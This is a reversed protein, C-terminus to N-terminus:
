VADWGLLSCHEYGGGHSVWIWCVMFLYLLILCASPPLSERAEHCRYLRHCKHPYTHNHIFSAWPSTLADHMQRPCHCTHRWSDGCWGFLKQCSRSDTLVRQWDSFWTVTKGPPERLCCIKNWQPNEPWQNVVRTPTPCCALSRCDVNVTQLKHHVIDHRGLTRCNM